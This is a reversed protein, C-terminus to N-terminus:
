DNNAIKNLADTAYELEEAGPKNGIYDNIGPIAPRANKGLDGLAILAYRQIYIERHRLLDILVQLSEADNPEIRRIAKALHIKFEGNPHQLKEKLAPVAQRADHDFKALADAADFALQPM